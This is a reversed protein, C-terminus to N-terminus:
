SKDLIARLMRTCNGNLKKEISKTLTWTICGYLQVSVVSAQYIHTNNLYIYLIYKTYM